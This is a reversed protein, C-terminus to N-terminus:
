ARQQHSSRRLTSLAVRLLRFLCTGILVGVAAYLLGEFTFPLGPSFSYWTDQAVSADMYRLFLVPREWLAAHQLSSLGDSLSQWRAFMAQMLKGQAQFDPDSSAVFKLIFSDLTKGTQVAVQQMATVQRHLEAVHGAMQHVYQQMFLPAQSLAVAGAIGFFRDLLNAMWTLM